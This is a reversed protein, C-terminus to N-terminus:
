YRYHEPKYPGDLPVTLYDAQAKTLKTRVVGIKELHLRAVEEDLARLSAREALLRSNFEYAAAMAQHLPEALAHPAAALVALYCTASALRSCYSRRLSVKCASKSCNVPLESDTKVYRGADALPSLRADNILELLLQELDTPGAM